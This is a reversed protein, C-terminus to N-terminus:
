WDNASITEGGGRTTLSALTVADITESIFRVSGDALQFHCGGPHYSFFGDFGTRTFIGDGPISGPGNIGNVSM